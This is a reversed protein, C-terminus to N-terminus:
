EDGIELQIMEVEDGYIITIYIMRGIIMCVVEMDLIRMMSHIDHGTTRTNLERM